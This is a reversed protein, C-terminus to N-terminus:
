TISLKGDDYFELRTEYHGSNADSSIGFVEASESQYLRRAAEIAANRSPFDGVFEWSGDVWEALEFPEGTRESERLNRIKEKFKEADM